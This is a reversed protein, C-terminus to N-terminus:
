GKAEHAHGYHHEEGGESAQANWTDDGDVPHHSTSTYHLAGDTVSTFNGQSDLGVVTGTMTTYTIDHGATNGSLVLHSASIDIKLFTGATGSLTYDFAGQQGHHNTSVTVTGGGTGSPTFTLTGHVTTINNRKVRFVLPSM